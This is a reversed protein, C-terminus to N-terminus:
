RSCTQLSYLRRADTGRKDQWEKVLTACGTQWQQRMEPSLSEFSKKDWYAYGFGYSKLAQPSPKQALAEWEPKAEYWTLNSDTRRGFVTPARSTSLDFILADPELTNWQDKMVQVDLPAIFTTTLPRPVALLQLGFEVVGGLAVVVALLVALGKLAQSRKRVWIWVLPVAFVECVSVALWQIRTTASIGASGQYQFFLMGLGLLGTLAAAAQYWSGARTAKWGWVAVLPLALIVPGVEALAALSQALSGFSLSGLHASLIAPPFIFPFSFSFYSTSGEASGRLRSLFMESLVGGQVLTIAFSVAVVSLWILLRRPVTWRRQRFIMFAALLGWAVLSMVVSAEVLLGLSALLIGVLVWGKWNRIRNALLLLTFGIMEDMQGTGSLNMVPAQFIGNAFAFPFPLPGAGEIAWPSVLAEALTPATAAGSGMLNVSRSVWNLVPAPLLLLLWRTGMGFTYVVGGVIGALRNWTLRATWLGALMAALAMALGRAADLATWVEMGGVRVMQAAFLLTFHHYGFHVKPDLAFRPPIDGTAMLSTMPINQYDDFIALGRGTSFFIYVLVLFLLVQLPYVRFYSPKGGGKRRTTLNFILGLLLTLTAALWAAMPLSFAQGLLNALWNQTVLGVALGVLLEERPQLHFAARVLNIGGVAWLVAWFLLRVEDLFSLDM